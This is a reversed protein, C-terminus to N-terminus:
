VWYLVSEYTNNPSACYWIRIACNDHGLSNMIINNKYYRYFTQYWSILHDTDTNLTKIIVTTTLERISCYVWRVCILRLKHLPFVCLSANSMKCFERSKSRKLKRQKFYACYFMFTPVIAVLDNERNWILMNRVETTDCHWVTSFLLVEPMTESTTM